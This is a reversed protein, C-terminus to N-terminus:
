FEGPLPLFGLYYKLEGISEEIDELARHRKKKEFSKQYISEFVIKFSSVDLMRYHLLSALNPMWRDIFKRDFGISNGALVARKKYSFEQVIQILDAEVDSEKKGHPVRSVLGSDTHHKTCWEDMKLLVDPEQYVIAEYKHVVQFNLDTVLLAVELIRNQNVDLGSMEMDLWFLFKM